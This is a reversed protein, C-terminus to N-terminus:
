GEPDEDFPESVLFVAGNVGGVDLMAVNDSKPGIFDADVADVIADAGNVSAAELLPRPVVM